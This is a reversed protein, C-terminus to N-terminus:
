VGNITGLDDSNVARLDDVIAAAVTDLRRYADGRSRMESWFRTVNTVIVFALMAFVVFLGTAVLLEALTFGGNGGTRNSSLM